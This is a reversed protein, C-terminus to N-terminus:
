KSSSFVQELSAQSYKTRYKIHTERYSANFWLDTEDTMPSDTNRLTHQTNPKLLVLISPLKESLDLEDPNCATVHSSISALLRERGPTPTSDLAKHM